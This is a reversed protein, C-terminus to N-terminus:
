KKRLLAVSAKPDINHRRGDASTTAGHRILDIVQPPTLKPDLAILKAALNVVNPSAMSTGSELLHGGGPITSDVQYGNASVVVNKGYSTFSAEDGARDVASVTLLNPLVFSSPITEDFGNDSDENGAACVFLIDPASKLAALLGDRDIEFYHRALRKREAPDKGVGNVELDHEYGSPAGGWSMNVVRVNHSRFWDVYTKYAAAINHLLEDTPANPVARPDFTIRAAALRVAPDGRAVIGAVHTGHLYSGFFNLQDLLAPVKDAPAAAIKAKFADAAPSDISQQLDSLGQFDAISKPYQAQQELTLPQLNGTTPRYDIDFSLGHANYPAGSAPKPDTYTRNPFLALDVGSDWIAVTVPTLTDAATFTVERAGWIDPKAVNHTKVYDNLLAVSIQRLPLDNQWISRFRLMQGALNDGIAGEKAVAPQVNQMVVGELIAPAMIQANTKSEKIRNGVVAWPLPNLAATYAAAYAKEYAAGSTAGSAIRAKVIAESRLGDTLKADPKDELARIKAITALADRDKHTIVQYALRTGLLDRLTAHDTITYGTLTADVDAIVKSAFADFTADDAELLAVASGSVKYSHRPLDDQTKVVPQASNTMAPPATQAHLPVALSLGLTAWVFKSEIM